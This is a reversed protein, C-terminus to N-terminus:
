AASSHLGNLDARRDWLGLMQQCHSLQINSEDKQRDEAAAVTRGRKGIISTNSM